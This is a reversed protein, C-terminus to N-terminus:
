HAWGLHAELLAFGEDVSDVLQFLEKDGASIYGQEVLFDFDILRQWFDRGYLIVAVGQAKRTQILTLIEFLEDLTGYGGPFCVLARARAMLHMKRLAFYHFQFNLEPTIYPNPRQEHPLVINFGGNVANADAAGRNAAEMIGPGGGTVVTVRAQPNKEGHAAVRQAFERAAAYYRASGAPHEPERASGFFVVTADVGKDQLLQDAKMWELMLRVARAEDRLIFCPDDYALRYANNSSLDCVYGSAASQVDEAASALTSRQQEQMPQEGQMSQKESM